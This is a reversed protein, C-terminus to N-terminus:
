GHQAEKNQPSTARPLQVSLATLINRSGRQYTVGIICMIDSLPTTRLDHWRAM